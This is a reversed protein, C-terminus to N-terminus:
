GRKVELELVRVMQPVWPTVLDPLPKGGRVLKAWQKVVDVSRPVGSVAGFVEAVRAAGVAPYIELFLRREMYDGKTFFSVKLISM